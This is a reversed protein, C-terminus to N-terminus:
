QEDTQDKAQDRRALRALCRECHKDGPQYPRRYVIHGVGCLAVGYGTDVHATTGRRTLYWSPAAELIEDMVALAADLHRSM